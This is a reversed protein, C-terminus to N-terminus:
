PNNRNQRHADRRAGKSIRRNRQEFSREQPHGHENRTSLPSDRPIVDNWPDKTNEKCLACSGHVAAENGLTEKHIQNTHTCTLFVCQKGRGSAYRAHIFLMDTGNIMLCSNGFSSPLSIHVGKLLLTLNVSSCLGSADQMAHRKKEIEPQHM